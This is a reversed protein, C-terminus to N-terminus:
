VKVYTPQGANTMAVNNGNANVMARDVFTGATVHEKYIAIQTGTTLAQNTDNGQADRVKVNQKVTAMFLPQPTGDVENIIAQSADRATVASARVKAIDMPVEVNPIDKEVEWYQQLETSNYFDSYDANVWTGDPDITFGLFALLYPETRAIQDYWKFRAMIDANSQRGPYGGGAYFESIVLPVVEDREELISYLYRHRFNTSGAGFVVPARPIVDGYGFTVPQNEFVGEHEDLWHGNEKMLGFLGTLALEEMGGGLANDGANWEPCGQPFSPLALKLNHRDAELVLEILAHGIGNYGNPEDRPNPENIVTWRDVAALQEQSTRALILQISDKAFQQMRATNWSGVNNLSEWEPNPNIYRCITLTKPSKQKVLVLPSADNIKKVLPWVYGHSVWKDVLALVHQNNISHIGVKPGKKIEPTAMINERNVDVTGIGPVNQEQGYQWLDWDWGTPVDPQTIHSNYHAIWHEMPIAWEPWTTMVEWENKSTYLRVRVRGLLLEVLKKLTDTYEEAPFVWGAAMRKREDDTREVDLTFPESGFDGGTAALITAEQDLASVGTVIYHYAGRRPIHLSGAWNRKFRSDIGKGSSSRILVCDAQVQSWIIDGNFTSVDYIKM